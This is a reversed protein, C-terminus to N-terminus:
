LKASPLITAIEKSLRAEQSFLTRYLPKFGLSLIDTLKQVFTRESWGPHNNKCKTFSNKATALDEATLMKKDKIHDHLETIAQYRNILLQVTKPMDKSLTSMTGDPYVRVGASTIKALLLAQYGEVTKKINRVFLETDLAMYMEMIIASCQHAKATLAEDTGEYSGLFQNLLDLKKLNKSNLYPDRNKLAAVANLHNTGRQLIDYTGQEIFKIYDALVQDMFSQIKNNLAGRKIINQLEERDFEVLLSFSLKMKNTEFSERIYIYVM